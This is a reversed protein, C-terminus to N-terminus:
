REVSGVDSYRRGDHDGGGGRGHRWGGVPRLVCASLLSLIILAAFLKMKM